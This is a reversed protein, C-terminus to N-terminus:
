LAEKFTWHKNILFSIFFVLITAFIQCGWLWLHLGTVLLYLLGTNVCLGVLATLLFKSMAVPHTESSVFIFLRSLFYNTVAGLVFGVATAAFAPFGGWFVLTGFAAYHVATGVGGVIGARGIQQLTRKM